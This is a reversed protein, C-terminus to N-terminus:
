LFLPVMIIGADGWCSSSSTWELYGCSQNVAEGNNRGQSDPVIMVVGVGGEILPLSLKSDCVCVDGVISDAFLGLVSETDAISQLCLISYIFHSRLKSSFNILFFCYGAM